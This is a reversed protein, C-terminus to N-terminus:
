FFHATATDTVCTRTDHSRLYDTYDETGQRDIDRM